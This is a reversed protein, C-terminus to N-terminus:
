QSVTNITEKKTFYAQRQHYYGLIFLGQGELSLTSPFSDIKDLIVSINYDSSKGYDSKAIHHQALQLLTPFVIGPTASAGQFYRERLGTNGAGEQLRELTAFLRGLQYAQSEHDVNLSVTIEEKKKKYNRILYAKIFAVREYSIGFDDGAEAKMRLLLNSYIGSPYMGGQLIAHMLPGEMSNPINEKKRQVATSLLIDKISIPRKIHPPKVLEMDKYHRTVNRVIAGFSNENWFRVAIRSSNPSLGLIYVRTDEDLFSLDPEEGYGFVARLLVDRTNKTADSNIQVETENPLEGMLMQAMFDSYMSMEKEAWFVCSVDGFNVKNTKSALLTNLVTSYQFMAAESVPANISQSKGYSNACKTNMSVLAGNNSLGYLNASKIVAHIRAIPVNEQGTILCNGYVSEEESKGSSILAWQERIEPRNHIYGLEDELRFVINRGKFIESSGEVELQMGNKVKDLFSLVAKAGDDEIDKLFDIHDLYSQQLHKESKILQKEKNSFEWGLLYKSNDCLIYPKVGSSRGEHMPVDLAIGVKGDSLDTIGLVNGKRDLTIAFFCSERTYGMSTLNYNEDDAMIQYCNCLAQLIM